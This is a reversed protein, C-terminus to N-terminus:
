EEAVWFGPPRGRERRVGGMWNGRTAAGEMGKAETEVVTMLGAENGVRSVAAAEQSM